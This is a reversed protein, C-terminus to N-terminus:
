KYLILSAIRFVCMHILFINVLSFNMGSDYERGAKRQRFLKEIVMRESVSFPM